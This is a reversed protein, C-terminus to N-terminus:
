LSANKMSYQLSLKQVQARLSDLNGENHILDDAIKLREERSHQAKLLQQAAALSCQDREQLRQLQLEPPCDVVCVRDVFDIGESESLLPIVILCYPAKLQALQERINQRILPHLLQELWHKEVPNQFVLDRLARRNLAGDPHLIGAGFHKSIKNLALSGTQTLERAILDCDIIPAGLEAFLEAVTSKGSAIGGTLGIKLM